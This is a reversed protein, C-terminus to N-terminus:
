MGFVDKDFRAQTEEPTLEIIKEEPKETYHMFDIARWADPNPPGSVDRKLGKTNATFALLSGHRLEERYQGWPEIYSYNIAEQYESATM